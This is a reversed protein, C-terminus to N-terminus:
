TSFIGEPSGKRTAKNKRALRQLGLSGEKIDKKLNTKVSAPRMAKISAIHRDQREKAKTLRKGMIDKVKSMDGKKVFHRMKRIARLRGQSGETLGAKKAMKSTYNKVKARSKKYGKNGLGQAMVASHRKWSNGAIGIENGILKKKTKEVRKFSKLSHKDRYVPSAKKSVMRRLSRNFGENLNLKIM